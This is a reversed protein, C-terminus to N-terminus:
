ILDVKDEAQEQQAMDPGGGVPTQAVPGSALMYNSGTGHKNMLELELACFRASRRHNLVELTLAKESRSLLEPRRLKRAEQLKHIKEELRLSHYLKKQEQYRKRNLKRKRPM